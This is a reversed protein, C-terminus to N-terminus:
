TKKLARSKSIRIKRTHFFADGDNKEKPDHIPEWSIYVPVGSGLLKWVPEFVNSSAYFYIKEGSVHSESPKEDEVSFVAQGVESGNAYLYIIKDAWRTRKGKRDAGYIELKYEDIKYSLKTKKMSGGKYLGM